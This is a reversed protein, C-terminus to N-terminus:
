DEPSCQPKLARHADIHASMSFTLTADDIGLAVARYQFWAKSTLQWACARELEGCDAFYAQMAHAHRQGNSYRISMAQDTNM